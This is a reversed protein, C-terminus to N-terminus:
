SIAQPTERLIVHVATAKFTTCIERESELCLEQASTRTLLAVLRFGCDMEVRALPGFPMVRTVKGTFCNRASSSVRSASLTIDEPRICASVAEGCPYDSVAEIIDGGVNIAVIGEVNSTVVGDLINEVGVFDAVAGSAPSYFIEKPSGEQVIEGDILVGVRNALRQGQLMDHTAMIITTDFQGIIRSILEEIKSTSVPDLNATPEDLLLVEPQLVMARALAVRQAEGGSLTRANRKKLNSLEVMELLADVRSRTEAKHEKRWKMGCAINDYVSANFVAPKQLVYAMRRRIDLRSRKSRSVDVGGFWIEGSTPEELLDLIRLLTTKGAGSHGILALVDGAEVKFNINRLIQKNEYRKSLDRVEILSM